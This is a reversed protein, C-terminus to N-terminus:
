KVGGEGFAAKHNASKHAIEV